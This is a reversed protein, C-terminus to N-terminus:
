EGLHSIDTASDAIKQLTLQLIYGASDFNFFREEVLKKPLLFAAGIGIAAGTAVYRLPNEHVHEAMLKANEKIAAKVNEIHKVSGRESAM